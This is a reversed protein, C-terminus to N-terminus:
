SKWQLIRGTPEAFPWYGYHPIPNKRVKRRTQLDSFFNLSDSIRERKQYSQLMLIESSMNPLIGSEERAVLVLERPM